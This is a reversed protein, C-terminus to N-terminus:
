LLPSVVLFKFGLVCLLLLLLLVPRSFICDLILLFLDLFKGLELDALKDKVDMSSSSCVM